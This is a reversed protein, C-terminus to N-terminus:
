GHAGGGARGAALGVTEPEGDLGVAPALGRQAGAATVVGDALADDIGEELHPDFGRLHGLKRANPTRALAGGVEQGSRVPEVRHVPAHGRDGRARQEGVTAQQADAHAAIAVRPRDADPLEHVQHAAVDSLIVGDYGALQGLTSPVEGPGRLDLEIGEKQMAQLLISGEVADGELYLLRLRGRVDVIALADNNATMSDGSIGELTARYKYIDRANPTRQFTEVKTAGALLKVARQEVEVGNEYLKLVGDGDVTSDMTVELSLSAGEHLRSRSPKLDRVRADPRKPGSIGIADMRVGALAADRAATLWGGRTDHGDGIVVLTQSAGAPFLSRAYEIASGYDSGGGYQSLFDRDWATVRGDLEHPRSQPREGFVVIFTDTGSGAGSSVRRAEELAKGLGQEGLSQSADVIVGLAQRTGLRLKAPGALALIALMVGIVRLVLLLRKRGSAMTHASRQEVWLLLLVAPLILLLLKPSEWDM